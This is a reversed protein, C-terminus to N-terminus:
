WNYVQITRFRVDKGRPRDPTPRHTRFRKRSEQRRSVNSSSRRAIDVPSHQTTSFSLSHVLPAWLKPRVTARYWCNRDYGRSGYSKGLSRSAVSSTTWGQWSAFTAIYLSSGESFIRASTPFLLPSQHWPTHWQPSKIPRDLTAAGRCSTWPPRMRGWCGLIEGCWKVLAFTDASFTSIFTHWRALRCTM